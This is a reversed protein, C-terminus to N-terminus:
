QLAGVIGAVDNPEAFRLEQDSKLLKWVSQARQHSNRVEEAALPAGAGTLGGAIVVRRPAVLAVLDCVDGGDRLIGPAMIGLRQGEYPVETVYSALMNVVAVRQIRNDAAAACIAVLGAPGVGAVAIEAPLKKDVEAFADLMRRVDVVWQGILPRGIWMSWEATNHDPARGIKDAPYGLTGTARLDMTVVSWGQKLLEATLPQSTMHDAGDLNLV